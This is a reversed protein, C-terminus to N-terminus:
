NRTVAGNGDLTIVTGAVDAARPATSGASNGTVTILYGGPALAVAYDASSYYRGLLDASRIYARLPNLADAQFQASTVATFVGANEVAFMREATRVAGAGAVAESMRATRVNALMSPAAVGALVGIIIVVIILEILTFGRKGFMM